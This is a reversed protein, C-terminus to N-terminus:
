CIAKKKHSYNVKNQMQTNGFYMNSFYAKKETKQTSKIVKNLCIKCIIYSVWSLHVIRHNKTFKLNGTYKEGTCKQFLMATGLHLEENCSLTHQM